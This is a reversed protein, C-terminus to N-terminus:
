ALGRGGIRLVPVFEGPQPPPLTLRLADGDRRFALLPGGLLDVREVVADPL